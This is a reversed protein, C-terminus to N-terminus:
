GPLRWDVSTRRFTNSYTCPFVCGCEINANCFHVPSEQNKENGIVCATWNDGRYNFMDLMLIKSPFAKTNDKILFIFVLHLIILSRTIVNQAWLYNLTWNIEPPSVPQKVYDGTALKYTNNYWTIVQDSSHHLIVIKASCETESYGM